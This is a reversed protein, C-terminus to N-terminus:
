IRQEISIAGPLRTLTLKITMHKRRQTASGYIKRGDVVCMSHVTHNQKRLRDKICYLTNNEVDSYSSYM